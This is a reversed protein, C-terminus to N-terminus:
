NQNQNISVALTIARPFLINNELHMHIKLDEELERMAGYTVKLGYDVYKPVSYNNTVTALRHLTDVEHRHDEKMAMIPGGLDTLTSFRTHGTKVMKQIFPFIIFEEHKMHVNLYMSLDDFAKKVLEIKYSSLTCEREIRELTHKIFTIKREAFKHHKNLIYISLDTLDMNSFDTIANKSDKLDWLEEMVIAMGAKDELCAHELSREGRTYFNIGNSSFISAAQTNRTVIAGITENKDIHM